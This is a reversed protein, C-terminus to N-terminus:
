GGGGGAAAPAEAAAAERPVYLVFVGRADYVRRAGAAELRAALDRERDTAMGAFARDPALFLYIPVGPPVAAAFSRFDTYPWSGGYRRWAVRAFTGNEGYVAAGPPIRRAAAELEAEVAPPTLRWAENPWTSRLLWGASLGAVLLLLLAAVAQRWRPLAGRATASGRRRGLRLRRLRALTDVAAALLGPAAWLAYQNFPVTLSPQDALSNALLTALGSLASLPALLPLYALPELMARWYDLHLAVRQALVEPHRLLTGLVATVSGGLSAYDAAVNLNRGGLLATTAWEDGALFLLSLGLAWAGERLLRARVKGGNGGGALLAKGLLGLGYGAVPVAAQNKTALALVLFLVFVPTRGRGQFVMAWALAAAGLTDPHWDLLHTGLVAPHAAAVLFLLLAAAPGLDRDRAYVALAAALLAVSAAQLLLPFLPGALRTLFAVPILIWQTADALNPQSTLFNYANIQGHSILWLAQYYIGADYATILWHRWQWLKALALAAFLLLTAAGLVVPAHVHRSVQRSM